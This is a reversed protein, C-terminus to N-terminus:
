KAIEKGEEKKGERGKKGKKIEMERERGGGGKGREGEQREKLNCRGSEEYFCRSQNTNVCVLERESRTTKRSIKTLSWM